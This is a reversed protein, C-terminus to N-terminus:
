NNHSLIDMVSSIEINQPCMSECAKCSLCRSPQMEDGYRSFDTKKFRGGTIMQENYVSLIDPISLSQPCSDTCYRCETCPLMKKTLMDDVIKHLVGFDADSLGIKNEFTKINEKVQEEDSMGSLIVKINPLSQLYAFAWERPSLEPRAEKMMKEYEEAPKTLKGGRLPEMVLVPLGYKALLELKKDANQYTYDLYNLQIQCFELENKYTDLFRKVTDLNGHTSFGLHKIRGNDRQKILYNMIGYKEDTYADVNEECLNHFLYFDIYDTSLRELQEEFIPEVKDMYKEGFGPFKDAIYFSKRDYKALYKGIVTESTGKHYVYATDFYNVGNKIAYDIMRETKNEDISGDDNKPLRMTGMGLLSIQKDKFNSYIM